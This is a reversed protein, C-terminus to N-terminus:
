HAAQRYNTFTAVADEAIMLDENVPIVFVRIKSTDASILEVLGSAANSVQYNRQEDLQLGCWTMDACIRRRIEPSNEGIGGGFLITDTGHLIAMYAGLYKRARHCFMDIALRADADFEQRTLLERIDASFKAIGLLGSHYNLKQELESLQHGNKLLYILVGPDVDGGRTAMILGELPTFGMSTEIPKGDQIATVSCGYGLQFSVIRQSNRHDPYISLYHQMMYRHALGHFGLRRIGHKKTLSEPLAYGTHAPLDHFFATDFVAVTFVPHNIKRLAVRIVMMAQPNHLPALECLAELQLLEKETVVIPASFNSGGYVIRHAVLGVNTLLSGFPWLSHLWDLVWEAASEHNSAEIYIHATTNGDSWDLSAMAGINNVTGKVISKLLGNQLGDYLSFKLSSSGANFVLMSTQRSNSGALEALFKNNEDNLM